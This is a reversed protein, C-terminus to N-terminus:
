LKRSWNRRFNLWKGQMKAQKMLQNMNGMGPIRGPIRRKGNYKGGKQSIISCIIINEIKYVKWLLIDNKNNSGDYSISTIVLRVSIDQYLDDYISFHRQVIINNM